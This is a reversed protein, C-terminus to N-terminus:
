QWGSIRIPQDQGTTVLRNGSSAMAEVGGVHTGILKLPQGTNSWVRVTGDRSGSAFVTENLRVLHMVGRTHGRLVIFSEPNKDIAWLYITNDSSGTAVLNPGVEIATFIIGEHGMVGSGLVKILEGTLSWVRLTQDFSSSVIYGDRLIIVATIEDRHGKLVAILDGEFSWIRLTTDRSGSVICSSVAMCTIADTHGQLVKINTSWIRVTSDASGSILGHPFEKLCTVRQSHGSLTGVVDGQLTWLKITGDSMGAAIHKTSLEILCLSSTDSSLIKSESHPSWLQVIGDTSSSVVRGDSLIIVRNVLSSHQPTNVEYYHYLALIISIGVVIYHFM